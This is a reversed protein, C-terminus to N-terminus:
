KNKGTHCVSRKGARIGYEITKFKGPFTKAKNLKAALHKYVIDNVLSSKGSGSVGTVCVFEGLPIKVNVNKLNHEAAGKVTLFAGNGKRRSSPVDIKKRGTLYDSTISSEDKELEDLTGSFVIEGGHIGAGPGIDVIHDAARMTDEDHEVVIVTNGLDRLHKLTAILKENDRQHLGISPEDLIYLVGTLASGMQTALRIRQSEGGSLTGANRSLSLYDLGVNKLFNLRAKVEKLIPKAIQADTASFTLSDFFSLEDNISMDCLEKISKGGVTVALSEPKLRAGQCDPCGCENMYTEIENRSYDSKTEKYRRELNNVVGEFTAYYKGGGWEANRHLEIKTDGTGYLVANRVKEHLDKFPTNIDVGFHKAIGEYYM